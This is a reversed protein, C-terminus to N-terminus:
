GYTIVPRVEMDYPPLVRLLETLTDLDPADVVYFGGLGELVEAYPGETLTAAGDTDTRIVTATDPGDLAEGAVISVGERATCAADFQEFRAMVAGQEEPTMTPWPKQPGDGVLLVMYKM